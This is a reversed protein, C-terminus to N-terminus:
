RRQLARLAVDVVIVVQFDRGGIAAVRAAVQSGPLLGVVGGMGGSARGKGGSVAGEAVVGNGPGVHTREVVAQGSKCQHACM